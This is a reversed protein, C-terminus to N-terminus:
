PLKFKAGGRLLLGTTKWLLRRIEEEEELIRFGLDGVGSARFGTFEPREVLDGQLFLNGFCFGAFELGKLGENGM